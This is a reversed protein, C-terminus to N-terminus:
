DHDPQGDGDHDHDVPPQPEVAEDSPAAPAPEPKIVDLVEIEFFLDQEPKIMSGAPPRSGYALATPIFLRRVTGKTAGPIGINWGQILRGPLMFSYPEGTRLHSSDFIQGDAISDDFNQMWGTYHVTVTDGDAAPEGDGTVMDIAVLGDEYLEARIDSKFPVWVYSAGEGSGWAISGDAAYGRDTTVLKGSSIEIGSTMNVAGGVSTPYAHPTQGAFGNESKELVLDLTAYCSDPHLDPFIEPVSWLGVLTPQIGPSNRFELTRLRTAGANDYLQFIAQRYPNAPDDARSVEVYMANPSGTLLVEEIHMLIHGEQGEEGVAETTQWSGTLMDKIADFDEQGAHAAGSLLMGASCIVAFTTRFTM